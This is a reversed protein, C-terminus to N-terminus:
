FGTTGVGEFVGSAEFGTDADMEKPLSSRPRSKGGASSRKVKKVPSSSLSSAHALPQLGKRKCVRKYLADAEAAGCVGHALCWDQAMHSEPKQKLLTEYFCRDAQGQWAAATVDCAM